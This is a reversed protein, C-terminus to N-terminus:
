KRKSERWKKTESEIFNSIDRMCIEEFVCNISPYFCYKRWQPKFRVFGLGIDRWNVVAFIKTKNPSYVENFRVYQEFSAAM